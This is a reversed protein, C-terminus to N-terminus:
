LIWIWKRNPTLHIYIQKINNERQSMSRMAHSIKNKKASITKICFVSTVMFLLLINMRETLLIGNCLVNFYTNFYIKRLTMKNYYPLNAKRGKWKVHFLISWQNAITLVNMRYSYKKTKNKKWKSSVFFFQFVFLLITINRKSPEREM